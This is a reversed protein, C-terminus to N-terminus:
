KAGLGSFWQVIGGIGPIGAFPNQSLGPVGPIGSPTLTGGFGPSQVGGGSGGTTSSAVVTVPTPGQSAGPKFFAIYTPLEGKSTIWVVFAFLVAAFIINDQAIGTVGAIRRPAALAAQAIPM